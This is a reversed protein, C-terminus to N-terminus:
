VRLSNPMDRNTRRSEVMLTNHQDQHHGKIKLHQHLAHRLLKIRRPIAPNNMVQIIGELPPTKKVMDM